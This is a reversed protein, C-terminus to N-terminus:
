FSGAAGRATPSLPGRKFDSLLRLPLGTADAAAHRYRGGAQTATGPDTAGSRDQLRYVSRINAGATSLVQGYHLIPLIRLGYASLDIGAMAESESRGRTRAEAVAEWLDELYSAFSQLDEATALPGHGPVFVADPFRAALRRISQILGQFDVGGEGLDLFPYYGHFVLDGTAVIVKGDRNLDVVLDGRTHAPGYHVIEVAQNGVHIEERDRVLDGPKPVGQPHRRWWDHDRLEMLAPAQEQAVIRAKPYLVNGETHDFHFHTNVVYDVSGSIHEHIWSAAWRSMPPFKPDVLMVHGGEEVVLSNCGGDLLAYVGPTLQKSTIHLFAYYFWAGAVGLALVLVLLLAGPLRGRAHLRKLTSNSLDGRARYAEELRRAGELSRECVFRFHALWFRRTLRFGWGFAKEWSGFRSRGDGLDEVFYTHHAYFGPLATVEWTVKREEEVEIIRAIAPMKYLYWWRIPQFCWILQKGKVLRRNFVWYFCRNWWSWRRSRNFAEWLVSVPVDLEVSDTVPTMDTARDLQESRKRDRHDPM